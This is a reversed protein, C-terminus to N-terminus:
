SGRMRRERRPWVGANRDTIGSVTHCKLDHLTNKLWKEGGFSHALASAHPQGDNIANNGAMTTRDGDGTSWPLARRKGDIEWTNVSICRGKLRRFFGGDRLAIPADQKDIVFRCQCVHSGLHERTKAILSRHM